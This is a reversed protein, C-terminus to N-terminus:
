QGNQILGLADGRGTRFITKSVLVNRASVGHLLVGTPWILEELETNTYWSALAVQPTLAM